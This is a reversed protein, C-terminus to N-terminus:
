CPRLELAPVVDHFREHLRALLNRGLPRRPHFIHRRPQRFHSRKWSINSYVVLSRGGLSQAM